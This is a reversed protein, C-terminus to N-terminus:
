QTAEAVTGAAPPEIPTETAKVEVGPRIRQLGSVVVRDDRDIGGRIIRLTGITRGLAVDRREIKGDKGVVYVFRTSQDAGIAADPVLLADYPGRGLLQVRAFLGPTLLGDPNPFIARGQMTGTSQDVRNDVFDMRGEREFGEDGAVQMRVPNPTDRSSPRSGERAMRQYNLYAKEDATFYVHIPDLSVITTLLTSNASGGSVLNGETVLKRGIRGSIPARIRTFEINLRAASVAAEAAQLSAEAERKQQTRADLEEESVARSRFLRKARELDNSALDLQVKSRTLQAASEDLVAQYPRPDIVFLLDGANVIAGDHFHVSELYGSVRARVEVSEVAALRGTYEDWDTVSQVLPHAFQVEPPGMQPASGRHCASVAALAVFIVILGHARVGATRRPLSTMATRAVQDDADAAGGAMAPEGVVTGRSPPGKIAVSVPGRRIGERDGHPAIEGRRAM